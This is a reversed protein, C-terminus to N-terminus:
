PFFSSSFFRHPRAPVLLVYTGCRIGHTISGLLDQRVFQICVLLILAVVCSANIAVGSLVSAYACTRWVRKRGEGGRM